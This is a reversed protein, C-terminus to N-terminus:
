IGKKRKLKYGDSYHGFLLLNRIRTLTLCGDEVV